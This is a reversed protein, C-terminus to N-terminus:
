QQERIPMSAYTSNYNPWFNDPQGGTPWGYTTDYYYPVRGTRREDEDVNKKLPHWHMQDHSVQRPYEFMDRSPPAQTLQSINRVPRYPSSRKNLYHTPSRQGQGDLPQMTQYGTIPTHSQSSQASARNSLAYAMARPRQSTSDQPLGQLWNAPQPLAAPLSRGSGSSQHYDQLPPLVQQYQYPDHAPLPQPQNAPLPLNPLPLSPLSPLPTVRSSHNRHAQSRLNSPQPVHQRKPAPEQAAEDWSRKRSPPQEYQPRNSSAPSISTQALQPPLASMPPYPSSDSTSDPPSPLTPYLSPIQLNPPRASSMPLRSALKFYTWFKNLQYYWDKWQDKSTYLNYKM